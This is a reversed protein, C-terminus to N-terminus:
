ARKAGDSSRSRGEPGPAASAGAGGSEVNELLGALRWVSEYAGSAGGRGSELPRLAAHLVRLEEASPEPTVEFPV